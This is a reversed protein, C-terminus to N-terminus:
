TEFYDNFYRPNPRRLRISSRLSTQSPNTKHLSEDKNSHENRAIFDYANKWHLNKNSIINNKLAQGPLSPCHAMLCNILTLTDKYVFAM